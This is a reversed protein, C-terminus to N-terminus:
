CRAKKVAQLWGDYLSIRQSSSMRPVFTREPKLLKQFDKQPNWLGVTVGALYAAGQATTEVMKPRVIHCNLMDAQFQMLFNNRCAGGDVKLVNISKRLEKQMVDVVDKTQYAISELAARTIHAASAGRTLGCILGRAQSDWYPAGLGTFAPVF